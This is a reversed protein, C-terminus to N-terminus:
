PTLRRLLARTRARGEAGQYRLGRVVYIRRPVRCLAAALGGLLGAKPTSVNVVDPSLRLILRVLAGMAVVDRRPDIDRALPVEHLTVGERAAAASAEAGPACTLHVDWGQERMYALQGKLLHNASMPATIVYLLTGRPTM